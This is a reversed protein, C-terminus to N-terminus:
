AGLAIMMGHHPRSYNRVELMRLETIGGLKLIVQAPDIFGKGLALVSQKHPQYVDPDGYVLQNGIVYKNTQSAPLFPSPKATPALCKNVM